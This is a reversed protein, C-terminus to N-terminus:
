LFPWHHGWRLDVKKHSKGNESYFGRFNGLNQQVHKGSAKHMGDSLLLDLPM